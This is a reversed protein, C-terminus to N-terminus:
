TSEDRGHQDAGAVSSGGLIPPFVMVLVLMLVLGPRRVIEM